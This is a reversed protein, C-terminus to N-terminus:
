GRRGVGNAVVLAVPEHGGGPELEPRAVRDDQAADDAPEDAADDADAHVEAPPPVARGGVRSQGTDCGPLGGRSRANGDVGAEAAAYRSLARCKASVRGLSQPM